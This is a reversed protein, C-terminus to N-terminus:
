FRIIFLFISDLRQFKGPKAYQKGQKSQSGFLAAPSLM